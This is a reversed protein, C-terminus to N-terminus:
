AGESGSPRSAIREKMAKRLGARVCRIALETELLKRRAKALERVAKEYQERTEIKEIKAM